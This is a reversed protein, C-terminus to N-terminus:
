RSGLSEAHDPPGALAKAVELNTLGTILAGVDILAHFRTGGDATAIFKLM